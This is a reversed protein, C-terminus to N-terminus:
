LPRVENPEAHATSHGQVNGVDCGFADSRECLKGANANLFHFQEAIVVQIMPKMSSLQRRKPKQVFTEWVKAPEIVCHEIQRICPIKIVGVLTRQAVNERLVGAWHQDNM